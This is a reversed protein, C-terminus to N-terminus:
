LVEAERVYTYYPDMKSLDALNSNGSIDINDDSIIEKYLKMMLKIIQNRTIIGDPILYKENGIVSYLDSTM